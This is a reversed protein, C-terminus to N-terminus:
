QGEVGRVAEEMKKNFGRMQYHLKRFVRFAQVMLNEIMM